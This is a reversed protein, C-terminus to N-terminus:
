SGRHRRREQLAAVLMLQCHPPAVIVVLIGQVLQGLRVHPQDDRDGYAKAMVAKGDGVQDLLTVDPKELSRRAEVRM